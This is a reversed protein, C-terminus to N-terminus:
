RRTVMCQGGQGQVQACLAAAAERSGASVRARFFTGKAGLDAKQVDGARGSLASYRRQADSLSRRADAESKSASIQVMWDGAGGASPTIPTPATPAPAAARPPEPQASALRPAVPGLALPAGATGPKPAVATPPKPAVPKPPVIPTTTVTKVPPPAAIPKPAAEAAVTPVTPVSATPRTPAPTPVPVSVSRFPTTPEAGVPPVTMAQPLTPVPAVATIRTTTVPVSPMPTGPAPATPAPATPATATEAPTPAGTIAPAPTAPAPTSVPARAPGRVQAGDSVISGDPRVVVTKVTHPQDISGARQAGPNIVRVERGEPTRGAVHEVPDEQLSVIKSGDVKTDRKLSVEGEGPTPAKTPDPLVKLPKGDAQILVPGRSKPDGYVKWGALAAGGALLVGVIAVAVKFGSRGSEHPLQRAEYEERESHPMIVTEQAAYPSAERAAVAIAAPDFDEFTPRPAEGGRTRHIEAAFAADLDVAPAQAQAFAPDYSGASIGDDYAYFDAWRPDAAESEPAPATSVVPDDHDQPNSHSHLSAIDHDDVPHQPIIKPVERVFDGRVREQPTVSSRLSEFLEAELDSVQAPAPSRPLTRRGVEVVHEPRVPHAAGEGLIRALEALPDEAPPRVRRGPGADVPDAAHPDHAHRMPESM